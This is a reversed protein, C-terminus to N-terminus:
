NIISESKMGKFMEEYSDCIYSWSYHNLIRQDSLTNYQLNKETPLKEVKEIVGALNGDEKNWYIAGDEAVERNFGVDHLLNLSTSGLAELLSPNTGGVEHGHLYAYANERIKKLLEQEYVTGVFKIRKDLHFNTSSKLKDYYPNNQVGTIIVLDKNTNSNMFEKVMTEYNNEPVFRGVILYYEKSQICHKGLFDLYEKSDDPLTSKTVDAGYSIYTTKPHFKAYDKQIYQEINKSDCILLDAYKVMWRESLKWYQRVFYNWKARKWEHGDPNVYLTIGLKKLISKYYPMFPGIRCALIYIVADQIKQERIKRISYNLAKLDYTIAKASGINRIFINFCEAQNYLFSQEKEKRNSYDQICAVHYRIKQNTNRFTLQEVFSEFGGYCAPIGKSGIIFVHKIM